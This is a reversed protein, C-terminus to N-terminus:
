LKSAKSKSIRYLNFTLILLPIWVALIILNPFILLYLPAKTPPSWMTREDFTSQDVIPIGIPANVTAKVTGFEDSENLVIEFSLNGDVGPMTEVIPVIISGNEDTVHSGEGIQLSGYLRRLGVRIPMGEVPNGSADTLVATIQNVSDVMSIHAELNAESFSVLTEADEFRPNNEIKVSYHLVETDNKLEYPAFVYKAKGENNTKTKGRFVLSDGPLLKYISFELGSAQEFGDEGKYKASIGIYSEKDMIKNYQLSVRAKYKKDQSYASVWLVMLAFFFVFFIPYKFPSKM